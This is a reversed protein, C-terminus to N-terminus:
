VMQTYYFPRNLVLPSSPIAHMTVVNLLFRRFSEDKPEQSPPTWPWREYLRCISKQIEVAQAATYIGKGTAVDLPAAASSGVQPSGETQASQETEETRGVLYVATYAAMGSKPAQFRDSSDRANVIRLAWLKRGRDTVRALSPSPGRQAVWPVYSRGDRVPGEAIMALAPKAQSPETPRAVNKVQILDKVANLKRMNSLVPTAEVVALPLAGRFRSFGDKYDQITSEKGARLATIHSRLSRAPQRKGKGKSEPALDFDSGAEDSYVEEVDM